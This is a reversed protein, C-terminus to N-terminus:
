TQDDKRDVKTGEDDNDSIPDPNKKDREREDKRQAPSEPQPQQGPRQNDQNPQNGMVIERSLRSPNLGPLM